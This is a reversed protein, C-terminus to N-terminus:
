ATLSVRVGPSMSASLTMRLAKTDLAAILAQINEVLQKTEMSVKGISIHMIPHKRESKITIAGSELEKKKVEPKDTITGNKPNPMLGKPGLTRAYKALKPIFAPASLLIDFEVKGAAIDAIVEDSAIVVRLVKGTSHPFTIQSQTEVDRVVIDATITGDFKTYSLRKILEVAAFADYAKTRDVQSRNSLYRKSRGATSRRKKVIVDTNEVVPATSETSETTAQSADAVIKVVDNNASMDVNRKTGM